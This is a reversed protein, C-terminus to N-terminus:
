DNKKRKRNMLDNQLMRQEAEGARTRHLEQRRTAANQVRQHQYAFYWLLNDFYHPNGNCPPQPLNGAVMLLSSM